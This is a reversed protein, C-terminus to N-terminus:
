NEDLELEDGDLELEYREDCYGGSGYQDDEGLDCSCVRKDIRWERADDAHVACNDRKWDREITEREMTEVATLEMLQKWEGDTAHRGAQILTQM